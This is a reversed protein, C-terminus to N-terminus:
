EVKDVMANVSGIANTKLSKIVYLSSRNNRTEDMLVYVLEGIAPNPIKAIDEYLNVRYKANLPTNKVTTRFPGASDITKGHYTFDTAM